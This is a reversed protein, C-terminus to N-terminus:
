EDYYDKDINWHKVVEPSDTGNEMLLIQEFWLGFESKLYNAIEQADSSSVGRSACFGEHEGSFGVATYM